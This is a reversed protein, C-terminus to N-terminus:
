FANPTTMLIKGLDDNDAFPEVRQRRARKGRELNRRMIEPDFKLGPGELPEQPRTLWLNELRLHAFPNRPPLKDEFIFHKDKQTLHDLSDARVKAATVWAELGRTYVSAQNARIGALVEDKTTEAGYLELVRWVMGLVKFPGTRRLFGKSEAPAHSIVYLLEAGLHIAIDSPIYERLGGDTHQDGRLTVTNMWFPESAAALIADVLEARDKIRIIPNGLFAEEGLAHSSWYTVQGSNVNVTPFILTVTGNTIADFVDQTLHKQLLARLPATDYISNENMIVRFIEEGHRLITGLDLPKGELVKDIVEGLVRSRPKLIDENKVSTYIRELVDIRRTAIFPLQLAGTSTATLLDFPHQRTEAEAFLTKVAGVSFAGHAGGGSIVLAKSFPM